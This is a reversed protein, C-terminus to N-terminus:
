RKSTSQDDALAPDDPFHMRGERLEMSADEHRGAARLIKALSAHFAAQPEDGYRRFRDMAWLALAHDGRASAEEAFRAVVPLSDPALNAALRFADLADSPALSQVACAYAWAAEPQAADLQRAMKALGLADQPEGTALAIQSLGARPRADDKSAEMARIYAGAAGDGDDCLARLEAEGLISALAVWPNSSKQAQAYGDLAVQADGNAVAHQGAHLADVGTVDSARAVFAIFPGSECVWHEVEFAATGLHAVLQQKSFARRVPCRLAQAPQAMAEVILVRSDDELSQRLTWLLEEPATVHGLVDCLVAAQASQGELKTFNKVIFRAKPAARQAFAIARPDSDVGIVEGFRPTIIRTGWGCGCGVDFARDVRPLLTLALEYFPALVPAESRLGPYARVRGRHVFVIEDHEFHAWVESPDRGQVYRVSVQEPKM